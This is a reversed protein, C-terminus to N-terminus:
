PTGGAYGRRTTAAERDYLLLKVDSKVEALDRAMGTTVSEQASIRREHDDVRQYLTGGFFVFTLGTLLVAVNDILWRGLSRNKGSDTSVDRSETAHPM